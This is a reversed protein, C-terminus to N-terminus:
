TSGSPSHAKVTQKIPSGMIPILFLVLKNLSKKQEWIRMKQLLNGNEQQFKVNM